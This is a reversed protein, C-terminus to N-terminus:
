PLGTQGGRLEAVYRLYETETANVIEWARKYSGDPLQSDTSVVDRLADLEGLRILAAKQLALLHLHDKVRSPEAAHRTLLKSASIPHEGLYVHLLEHFLTDVKYRMPVPEPTFSKLAYRMNVSIGVISQSPLNCLTLRATLEEAPFAKGTEAEAAEILKPGRMAWVREYEPRLDELEAVWREEIGGPRLLSCVSDFSPSYDIAVVLEEAHPRCAALVLLVLALISRLMSRAPM